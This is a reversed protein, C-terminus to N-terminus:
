AIAGMHSFSRSSFFSPSLNASTASTLRGICACYLSERFFIGAQAKGEESKELNVQLVAVACIHDDSM